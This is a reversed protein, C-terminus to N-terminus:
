CHLAVSRTPYLFAVMAHQSTKSCLAYGDCWESYCQHDRRTCTFRHVCMNLSVNARPTRGFLLCRRMIKSKREVRTPPTRQVQNTTSYVQLKTRTQGARQGRASKRQSRADYPIGSCQETSTFYLQSRLCMPRQTQTSFNHQSHQM